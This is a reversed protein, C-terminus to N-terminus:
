NGVAGSGVEEALRELDLSVLKAKLPVGAPNWGRAHAGAASGSKDRNEALTRLQFGESVLYEMPSRCDLRSHRPETNYYGMQKEIM